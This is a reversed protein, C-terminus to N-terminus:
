STARLSYTEVADMVLVGTTEDRQPPLSEDWRILGCSLGAIVPRVDLLQTRARQAVARAAVANGGVCHLIWRAVWVGSRGNLPNDPDGTPRSVTTYVLVWPHASVDPTPSPVAGDYVTLAPDAALLALGANALAQDLGDTV